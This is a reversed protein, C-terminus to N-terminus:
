LARRRHRDISEQLHKKKTLETLLDGSRDLLESIRRELAILRFLDMCATPDFDTALDSDVDATGQAISGFFSLRRIGARRFEVEYARLTAIVSDALDTRNSAIAM